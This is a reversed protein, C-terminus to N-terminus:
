IRSKLEDIRSQLKKKKSGAFLGKAEAMEKELVKIEEKIKEVRKREAEEQMQKREGLINTYDNFLKIGAVATPLTTGSTSKVYGDRTIAVISNKGGAIYAINSWQQVERYKPKEGHSFAVKVKGDQTVGFIYCEDDIGSSISVINEWKPVDYIDSYPAHVKGNKTMGFISCSHLDNIAIDYNDKEPRRLLDWRYHDDGCEVVSGDKKLGITHRIAGLVRKLNSWGSVNLCGYEPDGVAVATGRSTLGVIELWGCDIQVIDKWQSLDVRYDMMKGAFLVTGSWKLGVVYEVNMSPAIRMCVQKIDTWSEVTNKLYEPLGSTHVKGDLTVIAIAGSESDVYLLNRVQEVAAQSVALKKELERKEQAEKVKRLREQEKRKQEEAEKRKREEEAKKRAEEAQKQEEAKRAKEKEAAILKAQKEAEEAKKKEEASPASTMVWIAPRVGLTCDYNTNSFGDTGFKNSMLRGASTFYQFSDAGKKYSRLGWYSNDAVKTGEATRDEPNPMYQKVEKESLLFVKDVTKHTVGASDAEEIPTPAILQREEELFAKKEFTDALWSRILSDSWPTTQKSKHFSRNDLIYKSVLLVKNDKKDLVIWEVRESKKRTTQPYSGFYLSDGKKLTDM